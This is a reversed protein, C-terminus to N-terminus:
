PLDTKVWLFRPKEFEKQKNVYVLYTPERNMTTSWFKQNHYFHGEPFSTLCFSLTLFTGQKSTITALSKSLYMGCYIVIYKPLSELKWGLKWQTEFSYCNYVEGTLHQKNGSSVMSLRFYSSIYFKRPLSGKKRYVTSQTGRSPYPIREDSSHSGM